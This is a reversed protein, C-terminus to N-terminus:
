KSSQPRRTEADYSVLATLRLDLADSPTLHPLGARRVVVDVKDEIARKARQIADLSGILGIEREVEHAGSSQSVNIKCGTMIQMERITEGGATM